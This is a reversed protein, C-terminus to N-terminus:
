RLALVTRLSEAIAEVQRLADQLADTLAANHRELVGLDALPV